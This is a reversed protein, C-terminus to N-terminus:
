YMLYQEIWIILNAVVVGVITAVFPTTLKSKLTAIKSWCILWLFFLLLQQPVVIRMSWLDDLDFLDWFIDSFWEWYYLGSYIATYSLKIIVVSAAFHVLVHTVPKLKKKLIVQVLLAQTIAPVVVYPALAVLVQFPSPPIWDIMM